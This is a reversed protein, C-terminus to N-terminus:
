CLDPFVGLASTVEAPTKMARVVSNWPAYLNDPLHMKGARLQAEQSFLRSHLAQPSDPSQLLVQVAPGVDSKWKSAMAQTGWSLPTAAALPCDVSKM